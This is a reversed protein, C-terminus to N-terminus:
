VQNNGRISYINGRHNLEDYKKWEILDKDLPDKEQRFFMINGNSRVILAKDYVLYMEGM